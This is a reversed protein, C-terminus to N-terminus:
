LTLNIDKRFYYVGYDQPGSGPVSIWKAPWENSILDLPQAYLADALLVFAVSLILKLTKM